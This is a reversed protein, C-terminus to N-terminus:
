VRELRIRERALEAREKSMEMELERTADDLEKARDRMVEVEENLKNRDIDLQRRLEHLEAEYRELDSEHTPQRELKARFEEAGRHNEELQRKLSRNEDLLTQALAGQAQGRLETDKRELEERLLDVEAKMEELQRGVDSGGISSVEEHHRVLERLRD